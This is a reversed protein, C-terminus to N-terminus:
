NYDANAGQSAGSIAAGQFAVTASNGLEGRWDYGYRDV